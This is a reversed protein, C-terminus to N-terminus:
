LDLVLRQSRSGSCCIMITSNREHESTTYVTDRHIPTGSLVKTECAGCVGEECSYPVDIAASLLTTLITEGECVVFELGSKALVLTYNSNPKEAQKTSFREVHINHEPRCTTEAEFEEVLREPGCCYLEAEQATQKIISAVTRREPGSYHMYVDPHQSLFDHFLAHERSRCWYHLSVKRGLEQLRRFMSYIPTIGIGGAFLITELANENLKFHNRPIGIELDCDPKLTDHLLRSGGRGDAERKVAITYTTPSSLPTIISYQRM